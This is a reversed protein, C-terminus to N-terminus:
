SPFLNAIRGYLNLGLMPPRAQHLGEQELSVAPKTEEEVFLRADRMAM